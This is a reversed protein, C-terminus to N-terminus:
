FWIDLIKKRKEKYEEETIIGDNKLQELASLKKKIEETEKTSTSNSSPKIDVVVKGDVMDKNIESYVLCAFIIAAVGVPLTFVGFIIGWVLLTTNNEKLQKQNYDVAKRMSASGIILPIGVIAGILTICLLIGITLMLIGMVTFYTKVNM